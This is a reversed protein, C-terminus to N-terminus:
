KKNKKKKKKGFSIGGININIGNEITGKLTKRTDFGLIDDVTNFAGKVKDVGRQSLSKATLADMIKTVFVKAKLIDEFTITYDKNVSQISVNSGKQNVLYNGNFQKINELILQDVLIVNKESKIFGTKVKEEKELVIKKSTLTLNETEDNCYVYGQFLIVEDDAIEFTRM